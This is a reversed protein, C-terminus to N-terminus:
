PNIRFQIATPSVTGGNAARIFASGANVIDSAPIAATLQTSSVFTTPRNLGNWRVISTSVFNSGNVTLTFAPGGAKASTPSISTVNPTLTIKFEKFTSSVVGGNAVRIFASGVNAIDSAPIAATLQTPSVFTTPRNAGTWRVISTSVFNSGNVTLTFAPGGAAASTPSISTVTPTGGGTSNITFTLSNSIDSGNAVTVQATGASAIDTAPIAATLQTASVFTTPRNVGNWRVVLASVFNSGNVTLTFAPGGATASNPSLSTLTPDSPPPPPPPASGGLKVIKGVSPVGSGNLIFLLYYGPPAANGNAPATVNLGGTAQSFGPEAPHQGMNFAHTTSSLRIMRVKAVAAADSTEVFFSQGYAVSQPASTIAPRAGKFLYSPFYIETQPQGNGGTSLVRGDPLLVTASHYVRPIAASDMLSWTETAPDWLEAAFVAKTKDNFGPGSTGGTVLVKGDPLLVANLQRRAHTMSAVVRWSPNAQNLDIVEATKTPPDGGGVILIKGPAYMVSSGQTRYVGHKQSAVFTWA